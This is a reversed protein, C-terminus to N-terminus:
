DFGKAIAHFQMVETLTEIIEVRYKQGFIQEHNQFKNNFDQLTKKIDLTFAQFLGCFGAFLPLTCITIFIGCHIWLAQICVATLYGQPTEWNWPFRFFIM